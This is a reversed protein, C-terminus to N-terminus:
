KLDEPLNEDDEGFEEDMERALKEALEMQETFKVHEPQCDREGMVFERAEDETDFEYIWGTKCDMLCVKRHVSFKGRLGSLIDLQKGDPM